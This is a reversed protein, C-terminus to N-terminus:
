TRLRVSQCSRLPSCRHHELRWIPVRKISETKYPRETHNIFDSTQRILSFTYNIEEASNGSISAHQNHPGIPQVGKSKIYNDMKEAMIGMNEIMDASLETSIVNTLKLTKEYIAGTKRTAFFKMPLRYIHTFYGMM